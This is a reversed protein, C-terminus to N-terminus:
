GVSLLIEGDMHHRDFLDFIKERMQRLEDRVPSLGETYSRTKEEAQAVKDAIERWEKIAGQQIEVQVTNLPIFNRVQEQLEVDRAQLRLYEAWDARRIKSMEVYKSLVIQYEAIAQVIESKIEM